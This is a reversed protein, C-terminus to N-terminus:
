NRVFYFVHKYTSTGSLEQRYYILEKETLKEIIYDTTTGSSYVTLQLTMPDADQNLVYSGYDTTQGQANYHFYEGSPTFVRFWGPTNNTNILLGNQYMETKEAIWTDQVLYDRVTPEEVPCEKKKCSSLNVIFLASLIILIIRKM